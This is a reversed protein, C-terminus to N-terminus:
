RLPPELPREVPLVGVPLDMAEPLGAVRPDGRRALGIIAERCTDEDADHLRQALATRIALTDVDIQTGLAFTAWDRVAADGDNTMEILAQIATEEDLGSLGYAISWRVGDHPHHRLRALPAAALPSDQHGLAVAIASLVEPDAEAELMHILWAVVEDPFVRDPVGLQGLINAALAREEPCASRALGRAAELVERSGRFQLTQVPKWAAQDDPATLALTILEATTRPDARMQTQWQPETM